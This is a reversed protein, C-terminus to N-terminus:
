SHPVVKHTYIDLMIDPKICSDDNGGHSSIYFGDNCAVHRTTIFQSGTAEFGDWFFRLLINDQLIM